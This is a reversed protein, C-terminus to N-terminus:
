QYQIYVPVPHLSLMESPQMIVPSSPDAADNKYFIKFGAFQVPEETISQRYTTLKKGKGGFGDMHIVVQVEPVPKINEYNTMMSKKFRHVVLVKPPLNYTKVLDALYDIAFNIDAADFTGVKRGPVGGHKMAYEPDIGLHVEPRKLYEILEPIEEELTSHGPQIDLFVLADMKKALALVKDIEKDPMRLRYKSAKGPERQATVAIYHLAPIVRVSTDAEQWLAIEKDLKALMEEPALEGLIGMRKSYLNGYYAVIRHFPLLAGPKPIIEEIPWPRDPQNRSLQNMLSRYRSTDFIETKVEENLVTDAVGLTDSPEQNNQLGEDRKQPTTRAMECQQFLLICLILVVAKLGYRCSALSLFRHKNKM